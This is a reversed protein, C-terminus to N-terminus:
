KNIRFSVIFDGQHVGNISKLGKSKFIAQDTSKKLNVLDYNLNEVDFRDITITKNNIWDDLTIDKTYKITGNEELSYGPALSVHLRIILNGPFTNPFEQNGKGTVQAATGVANNPPFGIDVTEKVHTQGKGSCSICVKKYRKGQGQCHGCPSNVTFTQGGFMNVTQSFGRGKCMECSIPDFAGVGKCEDCFVQRTINIKRTAGTIFEKPTFHADLILDSNHPIRQRNGFFQDFISTVDFGGFGGFNTGGQANGFNDYHSRKETDSLVEYAEGIEKFKALAEENGPNVDPHYQKALKRYAKKIDDESANKEVGLIVYYDM